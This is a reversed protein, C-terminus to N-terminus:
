WLEPEVVRVGGLNLGVLRQKLDSLNIDDFAAGPATTAAADAALRDLLRGLEILQQSLLDLGQLRMATIADIELHADESIADQCDDAIAAGIRMERAMRHLLDQMRVDDPEDKTKTTTKTLPQSM